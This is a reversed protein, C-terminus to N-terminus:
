LLYLKRIARRAHGPEMRGNREGLRLAAEAEVLTETAEAEDAGEAETLLCQRLPSVLFRREIGAELKMQALNWPSVTYHRYNHNSIQISLLFGNYTGTRRSALSTLRPYESHQVQVTRRSSQKSSKRRRLTRRM